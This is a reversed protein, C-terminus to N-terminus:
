TEELKANKRWGSLVYIRCLLVLQQVSVSFLGTCSPIANKLQRDIEEQIGM